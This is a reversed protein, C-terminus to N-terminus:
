AKRWRERDRRCKWCRHSRTLRCLQKDLLALPGIGGLSAVVAGGGLNGKRIELAGAWLLVVGLAVVTAFIMIENLDVTERLPAGLIELRREAEEASVDLGVSPM